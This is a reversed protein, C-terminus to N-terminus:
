PIHAPASVGRPLISKPSYEWQFLFFFFFFFSVYAGISDYSPLDISILM